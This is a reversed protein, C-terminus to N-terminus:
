VCEDAHHNAEGFYDFTADPLGHTGPHTIRQEFPIAELVSRLAGTSLTDLTKEAAFM